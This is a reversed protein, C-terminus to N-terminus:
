RLQSARNRTKPSRGAAAAARVSPERELSFREALLKSAVGFPVLRQILYTRIHPDPGHKLAPWLSDTEGLHALTILANAKRAALIQHGAYDGGTRPPRALEERMANVALGRDAQASPLFIPYQYDDADKLLEHILVDNHAAYDHLILASVQRERTSKGTFAQVLPKLLRNKVPRFAATWSDQQFPNASLVIPVIAGAAAEWRPDDGAFAALVAAQRLRLESHTKPNLVQAWLDSAFKSANPKIQGCILLLEDPDSDKELVTGLLFDAQSPDSEVIALSARVRKNMPLDSQSRLLRLKEMAEPDARVIELIGRM